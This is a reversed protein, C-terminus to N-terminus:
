MIIKDIKNFKDVHKDLFSIFRDFIISNKEFTKIKELSMGNKEFAEAFYEFPEQPCMHENFKDILSINGFENIDILIAALQIIASKETVGTTELDYFLIKM